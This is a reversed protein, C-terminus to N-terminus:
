LSPPHKSKSSTDEDNDEDEEQQVEQQQQRREREDVPDANRAPGVLGHTDAVGRGTHLRGEQSLQNEPSARYHRPPPSSSPPRPRPDPTARDKQVSATTCHSVRSARLLPILIYLTQRRLEQDRLRCARLRRPSTMLITGGTPVALLPRLERTSPQRQAISFDLAQHQQVKPAFVLTMSKPKPPM